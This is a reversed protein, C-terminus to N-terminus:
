RRHITVERVSGARFDVSCSFWLRNDRFGRKATATGVVRDNRGPGNDPITHEFAVNRYGERTLRHAVSDQCMRFARIMPFGPGYQGRDRDNNDAAAGMAFAAFLCIYKIM